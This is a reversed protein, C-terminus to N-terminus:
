KFLYIRCFPSNVARGVAQIIGCFRFPTLIFFSIKLSQLSSSLSPPNISATAYRTNLYNLSTFLMFTVTSFSFILTLLGYLLLKTAPAFCICPLRLRSNKEIKSFFIFIQFTDHSFYTATERLWIPSVLHISVRLLGYKRAKKM